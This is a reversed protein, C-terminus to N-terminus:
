FPSQFEPNNIFATDTLMHLFNIIDQKQSANLNIRRANVDSNYTTHLHDSYHDIVEELTQFRGDHMYPATLAINRLSPARFKGNDITDATVLGHGIDEFDLLSNVSDIGNNFFADSTMLPANHCHSCEADPLGSGQAAEDFFMAHGRAESATAEGAGLIFVKDFDSQYSILTREFQALAKAALEKTIENTDDIGFAKRFKTPYDPHAKLKTVVNEWTDHLELVDEIPLLAQDELSIVRGDWFLGREVYGVNVLSMSSRKGELGDIGTSFKKGDAFNLEPLHCDACAMSLDASLIKDYFLHRGLDVGEKTLPNNSPILMSPFDTPRVLDYDEPAYPIDTLDGTPPPMEDDCCSFTFFLLTIFFISSIRSM